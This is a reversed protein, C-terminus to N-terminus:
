GRAPGPPVAVNQAADAPRDANTNAQTPQVGTAPQAPANVRANRATIEQEMAAKEHDLQKSVEELRVELRKKEDELASIREHRPRGAVDARTPMGGIRQNEHPVSKPEGSSIDDIYASAARAMSIPMAFEDGERVLDGQHYFEVGPRVRVRITSEGLPNKLDDGPQQQPQNAPIMTTGGDVHQPPVDGIVKDGGSVRLDGSQDAGREDRVNAM